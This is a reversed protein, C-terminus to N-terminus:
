SMVGPQPFTVDGAYVVGAGPSVTLTFHHYPTLHAAAVTTGGSAVVTDGTTDDVVKYTTGSSVAALYGQQLFADDGVFSCSSGAQATCGNNSLDGNDQAHPPPSSRDHHGGGLGDPASPNIVIVHAGEPADVTIGSPSQVVPVAVGDITVTSGSQFSGALTLSTPTSTSVPVQLRHNPDLRAQRVDFTVSGVNTLSVRLQNTKPTQPADNWTQGYTTYPLFAPGVGGGAVSSTSPDGEGFAASVADVSAKPANDADQLYGSTADVVPQPLLPPQMNPGHLKLGSVWYAHDHVLGLSPNDTVPLYSFTVHAPDREVRTDNLFPVERPVRYGAGAITLHEGVPYYEAEYRYGLEHLGENEFPVKPTLNEATLVAADGYEGATAYVDLIPVHRVNELWVMLNQDWNTNAKFPPAWATSYAGGVVEYAKGCLDPYLSCIWHTGVGGMSYGYFVTRQPDLAFHRAVDNWVEFVDYEAINRYFLDTGHAEPTAVIQGHGDSWDRLGQSGVYQWYHDTAAHLAMMFPLRRGPRYSEPITVVYSQLQGIDHNTSDVGQGLNLRSAFIRVQTGTTPVSSRSAGASLAAFDISHQYTLPQDALLAAGQRQDPGDGVGSFLPLTTSSSAPEDFRFGLDFIGNHPGNSGAGGPHSQDATQVPQLWGGQGDYLGTAVTAGWTGSPNSTARPVTVTFQRATMDENVTVQTMSWTGNQCVAYDAGMGWTTLVQDTGAFGDHGAQMPDHPLRACGTKADRDTDYALTVITTDPALLTNLTFRYVVNAPDLTSVRFEVLNAANNGYRDIATPYTLSGAYNSPGGGVKGGGHDAYLYGQYLYEGAAYAETGSVLLPAARFHSADSSALQPATPPPAYLVDPGPRTGGAYTSPLSGSGDHSDGARVAAGTMGAVLPVGSAVVAAVVILRGLKVTV